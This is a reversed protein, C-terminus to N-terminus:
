PERCRPCFPASVFADSDAIKQGVLVRDGKKVVPACPVGLHQSMPYVLEGKPILMEIEKHETLFKSEPPHIGGRFTPLSM